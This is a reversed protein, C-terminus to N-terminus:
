ADNNGGQNASSARATLEDRCLTLLARAQSNIVKPHLDTVGPECLQLRMVDSSRYGPLWGCFIFGLERAAEVGANVAQDALLFDVQKCPERRALLVEIVDDIDAGVRSVELRVLGRKAQCIVASETAARPRKTSMKWTRNLVATEALAELLPMYRNPCYLDQTDCEGLPNFVITSAGRLPPKDPNVQGDTEAPIYSLMLGTEFGTEVSRRQMIHHDTTPYHLYAGYGKEVCWATLESGVRWAMGSGRVAPDVVTNGLEAFVAGPYCIMAMHGLVRGDGALAGVCSLHGREIEQALAKVDYFLENAYSDTYARRFCAAIAAAHSTDLRRVTVDEVSNGPM